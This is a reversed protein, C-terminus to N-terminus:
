EEPTKLTDSCATAGSPPGTNPYDLTDGEAPVKGLDQGMRLSSGRVKLSKPSSTLLFRM